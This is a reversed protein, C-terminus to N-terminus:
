EDDGDDDEIDVASVGSHELYAEIKALANDLVARETGSLASVIESEVEQVLPVIQRYIELGASTLNLIARRRDQPDADRTILGAKLLKAVARSVRVKDMTTQAIVANASMSGQQGLVAMTRWEPASLKFREGYFRAVRRTLRNSLVTLRFPLYKGLEFNRRPFHAALAAAADKSM